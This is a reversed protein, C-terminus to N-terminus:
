CLWFFSKATGSSALTELSSNGLASPSHPHSWSLGLTRTPLIWALLSTGVKSDPWGKIGRILLILPFSPEEAKEVPVGAELLSPSSLPPIRM